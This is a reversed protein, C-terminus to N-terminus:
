HRAPLFCQERRMVIDAKRDKAISALEEEALKLNAGQGTGGAQVSQVEIQLEQRMKLEKQQM